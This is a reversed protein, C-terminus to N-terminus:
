TSTLKAIIGNNCFLYIFGKFNLMSYIPENLKKSVANQWNTGNSSILVTGNDTGAVIRNKETLYSTINGFSSEDWHQGVLSVKLNQSLFVSISNQIIYNNKYFLINNTSYLHLNNSSPQLNWKYGDASNLHFGNLNTFVHYPKGDFLVEDAPEYTGFNTEESGYVKTWNIGDRSSVISTGDGIAIYVSKFHDIKTLTQATPSNLKNWTLGNFSRIIIGKEGVAIFSKGDWVVSKLTQGIKSDQNIWHTGDTSTLIQGNLGVTVIIKNNTASSYITKFSRAQNYKFTKGDKSVLSLNDTGVAVYIKGNSAIDYVNETKPMNLIASYNIADLTKFIKNNGFVYNINNISKFKYFENVETSKWNNFDSSTCVHKKGTNSDTSMLIYTKNIYNFTYNNFTNTFTSRPIKIKDWKVGDKSVFFIGKTSNLVVFSNNNWFVNSFLDANLGQDQPHVLMLNKMFTWNIGNTSWGLIGNGSLVFNHNNSCIDTYYSYYDDLSKLADTAIGWSTGDSSFIVNKNGIAVFVSGNFAISILNDSVPSKEVAWSTGNISTRITGSEGVAVFKGKGYAIANLDNSISASDVNISFYDKSYNTTINFSIFFLCLFLILIIKSKKM